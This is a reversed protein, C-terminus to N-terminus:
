AYKLTERKFVLRKLVYIITLPLFTPKSGITCQEIQWKNCTKECILLMLTNGRDRFM